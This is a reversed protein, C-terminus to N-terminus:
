GCGFLGMIAARNASQNTSWLAFGHLPYDNATGGVDAKATGTDNVPKNHTATTTTAGAAGAGTVANVTVPNDPDNVYLVMSCTGDGNDTRELWIVLPGSRVNLDILWNIQLNTGASEECFHSFTLINTATNYAVPRLSWMESVDGAGTEGIRVWAYADNLSTLAGLRPREILACLTGAAGTELKAVAASTTTNCTFWGNDNSQRTADALDSIASATVSTASWTLPSASLDELATGAADLQVSAVLGTSYDDVISQWPGGWGM